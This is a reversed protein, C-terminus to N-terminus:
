VREWGFRDALAHTETVDLISIPDDSLFIAEYPISQKDTAIEWAKGHSDESVTTANDSWLDSIVEDVLAIQEATFLAYNTKRLPVIRKQTRKFVTREQLVIDGAQVLRARVPLLRKPAPGNKLRQYEVGTIPQGHRAYSLFDAWWLIKNLKTAGFNPDDECATAIHLILEALRDDGDFNDFRFTFSRRSDALNTM